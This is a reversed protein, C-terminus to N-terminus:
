KPGGMQGPTFGRAVSPRRSFGALKEGEDEAPKLRRVETARTKLGPRPSPTSDPASGWWRVMVSVVSAGM